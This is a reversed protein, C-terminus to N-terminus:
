NLFQSLVPDYFRGGMDILGISAIMEHSQFGLSFPFRDPSKKQVEEVKPKEYHLWTSSSRELGWADYNKSAKIKGKEDTSMVLSGHLDFHNYRIKKSIPKKKEKTFDLHVIKQGNIVIYVREHVLKNRALFGKDEYTTELLGGIFYKTRKYKKHQTIELQKGGNPGYQNYIVTNGKTIRNPKNFHNYSIRYDLGNKRNGDNDYAISKGNISDLRSPFTTSYVY